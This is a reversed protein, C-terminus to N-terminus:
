SVSRERLSRNQMAAAHQEQWDGMRCLIVQTCHSAKM